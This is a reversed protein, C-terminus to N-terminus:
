HHALLRSLPHLLMHIGDSFPHKAVLFSSGGRSQQPVMKLHVVKRSQEQDGIILPDDGPSFM